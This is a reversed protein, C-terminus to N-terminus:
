LAAHADSRARARMWVDFRIPSVPSRFPCTFRATPAAEGAAIEADLSREDESSM